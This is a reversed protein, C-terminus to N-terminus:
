PTSQPKEAAAGLLESLREADDVTAVEDSITNLVEAGFGLEEAVKLEDSTAELVADAELESTLGKAELTALESAAEDLEESTADLVTAGLRLEESTAEADDLAALEDSM